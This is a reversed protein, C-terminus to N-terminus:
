VSTPNLHVTQGLAVALVLYSAFAAPFVGVCCLLIGFQAVFAALLYILVSLFYNGLNLRIFSLNQQFAFGAGITGLMASRTLAAPLYVMMALSVLMVLGYFAVIGLGGLAAIGESEGFGGRQASGLAIFPLILVLALVGMVVMIGLVYLLYVATLRLGESFLGGLDDWDPMPRAAGAAVNRLTRSFYGLLFPVGILIPSLLAFVGGILVKKIWDPDETFFSFCRGFDLTGSPAPTATAM